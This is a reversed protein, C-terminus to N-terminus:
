LDERYRQELFHGNKLSKRLTLGCGFILRGIVLQIQESTPRVSTIHEMFHATGHPAKAEDTSGVRFAVNISLMEASASSDTVVEIGNSLRTYHPEDIRRDQTM